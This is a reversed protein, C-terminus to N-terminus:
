SRASLEMLRLALKPAAGEDEHKFFVYDILSKLSTKVASWALIRV